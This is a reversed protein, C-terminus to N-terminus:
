RCPLAVVTPSNGKPYSLAVSGPQHERELVLGDNAFCLAEIM